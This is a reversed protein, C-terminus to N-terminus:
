TPLIHLFEYEKASEPLAVRLDSKINGVNRQFSYFSFFAFCVKLISINFKDKIFTQKFFRVMVKSIFCALQFVQTLITSHLSTNM